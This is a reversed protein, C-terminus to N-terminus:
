KRRDSLYRMRETKPQESGKEKRVYQKKETGAAESPAVKVNGSELDNFTVAPARAPRGRYWVFIMLVVILAVIVLVVYPVWGSWISSSVDITVSAGSGPISAIDTSVDDVVLVASAVTSITHSGSGLSFTIQVSRSEGAELVATVTAKENTGEYAKVTVTATGDSTNNSVNVSITGDSNEKFESVVVPTGMSLDNAADSGDSVIAVSALALVAALIAVIQKANM